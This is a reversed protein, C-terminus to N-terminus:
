CFLDGLVRRCGRPTALYGEAWIRLSQTALNFDDSPPTNEDGKSGSVQPEDRMERPPATPGIITSESVTRSSGKQLNSFRTFRNSPSERAPVGGLGFESPRSPRSRKRIPLEDDNEDVEPSRARVVRGRPPSFKSAQSELRSPHVVDEVLASRPVPARLEPQVAQNLLDAIPARPHDVRYHTFPPRAPFLAPSPLPITQPMNGTEPGSWPVVPGYNTGGAAISSAQQPLSSRPGGASAFVQRNRLWCQGLPISLSLIDPGLLWGSGVPPMVPVVM